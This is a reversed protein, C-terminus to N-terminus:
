HFSGGVIRGYADLEAFYRSNDSRMERTSVDGPLVLAVCPYVHRFMAVTPKLAIFVQFAFLNVVSCSATTSQASAFGNGTTASAAFPTAVLLTLALTCLTKRM